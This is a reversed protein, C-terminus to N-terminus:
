RLAGERTWDARLGPRLRAMMMGLVPGYVLSYCVIGRWLLATIGFRPVLKPFLLPLVALFNVEFLLFGYLLGYLVLLSSRASLQFFLALLWVFLLGFVVALVFHIVLGSGVLLAVSEDPAFAREGLMLSAVLRFPGLIGSGQALSILAQALALAVGAVLGALIGATLIASWRREEVVVGVDM